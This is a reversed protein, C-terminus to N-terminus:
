GGIIQLEKPFSTLSRLGDATVLVDDEIRVGFRDPLYIGPEITFTMGPELIMPNDSRIYPAEHTQMGLGHGTRHIFYEGYGVDEIADRAAKDVTQCAVGPKAAAHGAQNAALVTNYVREQEPSYDGVAFTRTIDSFYGDASAGFDIVLLDGSALVRESPVAHPNAGNPGTSVIPQFPLVGGSGSKLLAQVLMGAVELESMGIRIEAIVAALAQEAIGAAKQMAAVEVEDKYMRLSALVDTADVFEAGPLVAELLRYELLRMSGDEVGIKKAGTSSFGEAYRQQWTSLDEGYTTAALPYALGALKASELEPLVIRPDAQPFFMGVVPRESVHFHLGTLYILSESPNLAIADLGATKIAQALKSQRQQIYEAPITM